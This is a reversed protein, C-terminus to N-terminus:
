GCEKKALEARKAQVYNHTKSYADLAKQFDAQSHLRHSQLADFIAAQADSDRQTLELGQKRLHNTCTQVTHQYWFLGSLALDLALGVIGIFLIIRHRDIASLAKELRGGQDKVAVTLDEVAVLLPAIHGRGDNPTTM